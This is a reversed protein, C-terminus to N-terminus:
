HGTVQTPIVGAARLARNTFHRLRKLREEDLVGCIWEWHIAVTDGVDPRDMLSMGDRAWLVTREEPEGFGIWRGDWELPRVLVNATTDNVASVRAPAIRCRDLTDLAPGETGSRLLGVWPYIGFVHFAHSPEAGRLVGEGIKGFSGAARRRFRDDAHDGIASTAVRSLLDNGIWYAEVVQEDLQDRIGNCRAVLELYPFAGTFTPARARLHGTDSAAAAEFFDEAEATGCYGLLNPPVAFRAFLRAGSTM